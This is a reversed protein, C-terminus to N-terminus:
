VQTNQRNCVTKNTPKFQTSNEQLTQIKSIKISFVKYIFCKLDQLTNDESTTYTGKVIGDLFQPYFRLWRDLGPTQGERM